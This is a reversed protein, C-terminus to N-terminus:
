MTKKTTVTAKNAKYRMDPTGDAKMKGIATTTKAMKNEKYRMDPTGDVKMKSSTAIKTAMNKSSAHATSSMMGTKSTITHTATAPAQSMKTAMAKSSSVMGTAPVATQAHTASGLLSLSILFGLLRKM